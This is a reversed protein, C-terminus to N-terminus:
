WFKWWKKKVFAQKPKDKMDLTITTMKKDTWLSATELNINHLNCFTDVKNQVFRWKFQQWKEELETSLLNDFKLNTRGNEIAELKQLNTHQVDQRDLFLQMMEQREKITLRPVLVISPDNSEQRKIRESLVEVQEQSYPSNSFDEPSQPDTLFYDTIFVSYFENVFRDFFYCENLRDVQEILATHMWERTKYSINM